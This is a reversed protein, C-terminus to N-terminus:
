EMGDHREWSTHWGFRGVSPMASRDADPFVIAGARAQTADSLRDASGTRESVRGNGSLNRSLSLTLTAGLLLLLLALPGGRSRHTLNQVDM